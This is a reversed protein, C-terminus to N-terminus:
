TLRPLCSIDVLPCVLCYDFLSPALVFDFIFPEANMMSPDSIVLPHGPELFIIGKGEVERLCRLVATSGVKMMYAAQHSAESGGAWLLDESVIHYQPPRDEEEGEAITGQIYQRYFDETADLLSRHNAPSNPMAYIKVIPHQGRLNHHVGGRGYLQGKKFFDLTIWLEDHQNYGDFGASEITEGDQPKLDDLDVPIRHQLFIYQRGLDDRARQLGKFAQDYVEDTVLGNSRITDTLPNRQLTAPVRLDELIPLHIQSPVPVNSRLRANPELDTHPGLTYQQSTTTALRSYYRFVGASPNHCIIQRRTRTGTTEDM